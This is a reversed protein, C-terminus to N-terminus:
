GIDEGPGHGHEAVVGGSFRVSGGEDDEHLPQRGAHRDIEVQDVGFEPTSLAAVPAAPALLDLLVHHLEERTHATAPGDARRNRHHHGVLVRAEIVELARRGHM